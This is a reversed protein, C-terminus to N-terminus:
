GFIMSLIIIAVLVVVVWLWWPWCGPPWWISDCPGNSGNTPDPTPQILDPIDTPPTIGGGEQDLVQEPLITIPFTYSAV